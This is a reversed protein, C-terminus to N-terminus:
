KIIPENIKFAKFIKKQTSSIETLMSVGNDFNIISIKQMEKLIDNVSYKCINGNKIIENYICTKLILALFVVFMKGKLSRTNHVKLRKVDLDNKLNDFAKEVVDKRRYTYLVDSVNQLDNSIVVMYGEHLLEKEIVEDIITCIYKGKVKNIKLYKEYKEINKPLRNYALIYEDFEKKLTMVKNMVRNEIENRKDDDYLVHYYVNAQKIEDNDSYDWKDKIVEGYVLEDVTIIKSPKKINEKVLNVKSTAIASKFPVAITFKKKKKIMETINTDSYFGKDMVFKIKKIKLADCYVLMNSLTKVDKISGPYLNYFIPLLSSEGFFMGMNIQPLKEKDRNYGMEVLEILESYSSISTIDFAIYESELRKNVWKKFFDLIMEDSINKLFSSIYQSSLDTKLCTNTLEMWKPANSLSSDVCVIYHVLTTLVDYNDKFLDLLISKLGISESIQDLFYINGFNKTFKPKSLGSPKKDYMIKTGDKTIKGIINRKYEYVKKEKNWITVNEYIYTTGNPNKVNVISSM